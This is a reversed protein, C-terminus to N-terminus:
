DRAELEKERIWLSEPKGAALNLWRGLAFLYDSLRNLFTLICMINDAYHDEWKMADVSGSIDVLEVITRETRRCVTRAVQAWSAEPTGGPIVFSHLPALNSCIEDICKEMWKVSEPQFVPLSSHEELCPESAVWASADMLLGQATMLDTVIDDVGRSILEPDVGQIKRQSWPANNILSVLYGLTSNLEDLEGYARVKVDNKSIRDGGVLSTMGRDGTGTYIKM